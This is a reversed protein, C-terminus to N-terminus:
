WVSPNNRKDNYQLQVGTLRMDATTDDGDDTPIRRIRFTILDGLAPTGGVTIAASAAINLKNTSALCTNTTKVETGWTNDIFDGSSNAVASIGWVVKKTDDATQQFYFYKVKVSALDWSDPMALKFYNTENATGDFDWVDYIPYNGNTPAHYGATCYGAGNTLMAGADIWITHYANTTLGAWNTLNASGTQYKYDFTNTALLAWNTLDADGPQYKWDFTNTVLLAWNTLNAAGAQYKWDFTNTALLAWNTLDADGPQYKWDFTNTALLAWNTLDADGPQYKWDFTNTALLSWNTLDTDGPQYKWDFTNTVLLAWNTLNAAGTQYKYDFTNTVLLSWNTLNASGTQLVSRLGTNLGNTANLVETDSAIWSANTALTVHNTWLMGDVSLTYITGNTSVTQNQGAVIYETTGTGEGGADDRWDPNGSADTKWVKSAQGTGRKVVGETTATNTAYTWYAGSALSNTAATAARGSENTSNAGVVYQAFNSNNLSIAAVHSTANAGVVMAAFNTTQASVRQVESTANNSVRTSENTALGGIRASENTSNAGIINAIQQVSLLGATGSHVGLAKTATTVTGLDPIDAINTTAAHASTAILLLALLRKVM